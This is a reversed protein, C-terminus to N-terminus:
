TRVTRRRAAQVSGSESRHTLPREPRAPLSTFHLHEDDIVVDLEDRRQLAPELALSVPDLDRMVSVVPQPECSLRLGVQDHEVDHQGAEVPVPHASRQAFAPHPRRDQHQGGLVALVVLGLTEVGAGVVVEDLGERERHQERPQPGQRSAGGRVGRDGDGDAIQSEVGPQTAHPAAVDLDLQRRALEVHEFEEHAAGPLDLGFGVDEGPHPWM